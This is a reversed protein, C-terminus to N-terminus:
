GEGDLKELRDMVEALQKRLDGAMGRLEAVEKARTDEVPAAPAASMGLGRGMGMGMGRGGGRGGGAGSRMGAHAAVNAGGASSLKGSKLAEVAERVTGGGFLYCPIGAAQFVNFANPGLNGSIVAEAGAGVAFQAAQIGAGGAANAASNEVSEAAMTETDVFVYIPCRGFMPSAPGDLGAGSASVVVKM